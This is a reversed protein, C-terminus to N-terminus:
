QNCPLTISATNTAIITGVNVIVVARFRCATTSVFGNLGVAIEQVVANQRRQNRYNLWRPLRANLTSSEPASPGPNLDYDRRQRTVTKLLSNVGM